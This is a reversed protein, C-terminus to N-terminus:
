ASLVHRGDANEACWFPQLGHLLRGLPEVDGDHETGEIFPEVLVAVDHGAEAVRTVAEVPRDLRLKIKRPNTASVSDMVANACARVEQSAELSAPMIIGLLLTAM